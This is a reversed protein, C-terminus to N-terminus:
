AELVEVARQLTEACFGPYLELRRGNSLTVLVAAGTRPLAAVSDPDPTPNSEPEAEEEVTHVTVFRQAMAAPAPESPARELQSQDAETAAAVWEPYRAVWQSLQWPPIGHLRAFVAKSQGSVAWRQVLDKWFARKRQQIGDAM